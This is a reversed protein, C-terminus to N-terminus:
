SPRLWGLVDVSGVIAYRELTRLEQVSAEIEKHLAEYERLHFEVARGQYSTEDGM